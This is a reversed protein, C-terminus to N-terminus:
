IIYVLFLLVFYMSNYLVIFVVLIFSLLVFVFFYLFKEQSTKRILLPGVSKIKKRDELKHRM